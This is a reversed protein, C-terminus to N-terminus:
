AQVVSLGLEYAERLATPHNEIAGKADIQRYLLHRTFELDIADFFYRATLLICDFLKQGKTAGVSILYGQGKNGRLLSLPKKLMYKGVWFCQSRDIMAKTGANFGYFFIPAALCILQSVRICAYINEMDDRLVCEGTENCGGCEICPSFAYDRLVIETLDGGAERAGRVFEKLLADTNGGARPSGYIATIKMLRGHPVHIARYGCLSLVLFRRAASIACTKSCYAIERRGTITYLM